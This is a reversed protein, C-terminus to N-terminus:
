LILTNNERDPDLLLYDPDIIIKSPKFDLSFEKKNKEVKLKITKTERLKGDEDYFGIEVFDNPIISKDAVIKKFDFDLKVVYTNDSKEIVAGTNLSVEHLTVTEFYDTILYQLHKPTINKIKNLLDISTPYYGARDKYENLFEKFIAHVENKGLCHSLTNFAITGKGYALYQQGGKVLYLPPEENTTKTRGKFYRNHQEKLFDFAKDKGYVEGYINLSIYETMSESLMIAGFADAPVMQNGFWQHTLEHAITYFSIDIDGDSSNAIFRIESTPISNAMVSAYTGESIPFEIIRAESFQYNGFYNRNYDLAAILGQKMKDINYTHDPHHYIELNIGDYSDKTVEFEGSSFSLSNKIKSDTQYEFFNRDNSTWKKKLYGPAIATQNNSTSIVTHLNIADSDQSYYHHGRSLSDSPHKLNSNLFYGIRPFINNKFFTGNKLVNSNNEFLTNPKNDIKFSLEVTDSPLLSNELELVWFKVYTDSAVNKSSRNIKFETLEDFGTKILLTDIPKKSTNVLTYKGEIQLKSREPFIDIKLDIDTVKPQNKIKGYKNFDNEFTKFALNRDKSSRVTSKNEESYIKFGSFIFAALAILCILKTKTKFNIRVFRFRDIYSLNIGRNWILLATILCIIAFAFWYIKVLFYPILHRGYGDLDSYSLPESFNFLFLLTDIGIQKLGSIGFWGLILIFIGLYTNKVISHVFVAVLAWIILGIFQVAYQHFLYLEIEVNYYNNYIQMTIGAIIMIGLLLGQMKIITLVKSLLLSFNSIPSADVLQKMNTASDKHVLMGSYIFTLLIIITTFFFAPITLVVHTVPLITITEKNTVTAIAMTTALLGLIIIIYFMWSKIITKFNVKSLLWAYKIQNTGTYAYNIEPLKIKLIKDNIANIERKNKEPKFSKSLGHEWFQFKRYAILLIITSVLFWILRNYIISNWIPILKSNKDTLTWHQTEYLVANQGFPDLLAISIGSFANESINQIFFLIIVAIFGAYINRFYTVIAFVIAGFCFLNPIIFVLLAQLYGQIQFPGIKTKHLGPTHEGILIAFCVFLAIFFVLVFGSIFKGLLYHPKEIPFSYLLSHTNSRYDKYITSGIIAPLLFLLLKGFYQFFYNIEFPSNILREITDTNPPPDFIGGTGVIALFAISTFVLLYLYFTPKKFWSKLEFLLIPKLM